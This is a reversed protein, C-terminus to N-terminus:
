RGLQLALNSMQIGRVFQSTQDTDGTQLFAFSIGTAPEAFGIQGGYGPWGYATESEGWTTGFGKGIVVGLTRNAPLNMLPDPLTCRINGVADALVAPNWLRGPNHLLGQYFLALTAATMVGGGGPEGAEIKAAYDFPAENQEDAAASLQAIDTQEDRPIGLLRPLGLPRTVRQEVFDRFDLGSLREILEALVWHASMGHYVYKAGPEYELTWQALQAIRRKPDAGDASDMPASPFGCTMVLVQEVTVDQKGNAAFEPAYDAVPRTIDLKGDAILHWIASSVIPKTASAVWFRTDDSASGFSGTWLVENGRAVAVQCAALGGEIEQAAATELAATDVDNRM